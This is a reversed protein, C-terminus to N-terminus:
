FPQRWLNRCWTDTLLREPTSERNEGSFHSSFTLLCFRGRFRRGRRVEKLWCSWRASLSCLCFFMGMNVWVCIMEVAPPNFCAHSFCHLLLCLSKFSDLHIIVGRLPFFYNWFPSKSIHRTCVSQKETGRQRSCFLNINIKRFTSVNTRRPRRADAVLRLLM